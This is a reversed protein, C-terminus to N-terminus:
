RGGAARMDAQDSADFRNPIRNGDLIFDIIDGTEVKWYMVSEPNSSHKPHEGDEHPEVMRIGNNVLGLIHGVEHVLVAEEVQAVTPCGFSLVSPCSDRTKRINDKFMVISSGSYAAGLVRGDGSDESSGGNLYLVHLVARGKGKEHDRVDGEIDRVEAFSYKGGGSGPVDAARRVEVGGPKNLHAELVSELAAMATDEPAAASQYDVEVLLSRFDKDSLFERAWDGANGPDDFLRDLCGGLASSAVLAVSLVVFSRRPVM